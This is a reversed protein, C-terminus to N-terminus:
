PDPGPPAIAPFPKHRRPRRLIGVDHHEHVALAGVIRVTYRPQDLRDSRTAVIKHDPRARAAPTLRSADGPMLQRRSAEGTPAHPAKVAHAISVHAGQTGNPSVRAEWESHSLQRVAPVDFHLHSRRARSQANQFNRDIVSPSAAAIGFHRSAKNARNPGARADDRGEGANRALCTPRPGPAIAPVLERVHPSWIRM